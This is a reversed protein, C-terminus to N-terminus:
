KSWDNTLFAWAVVIVLVLFLGIAILAYKM